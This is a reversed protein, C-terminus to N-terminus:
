NGDYFTSKTAICTTDKDTSPPHSPPEETVAQTLDVVM